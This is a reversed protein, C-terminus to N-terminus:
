PIVLAVIGILEKGFAAALGLESPQTQLLFQVSGLILDSVRTVIDNPAVQKSMELLTLILSAPTYGADGERQLIDHSVIFTRHYAWVAILAHVTVRRPVPIGFAHAAVLNFVPVAWGTLTM